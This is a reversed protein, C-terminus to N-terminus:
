ADNYEKWYEKAKEIDAAQSRKDGGWLLIIEDRESDEGFYVRYGPGVDIKLEFVGDKLSEFKGFNGNLRIRTLRAQIRGRGQGDKLKKIWDRFPETTGDPAVYNRLNRPRGEVGTDASPTHDKFWLLM